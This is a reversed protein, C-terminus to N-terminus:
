NRQLWDIPLITMATVRTVVPRADHLRTSKNLETGNMRRSCAQLQWKYLYTVFRYQTLVSSRISSKKVHLSGDVIGRQTVFFNSYRSFRFILTSLGM